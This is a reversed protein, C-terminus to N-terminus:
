CDRDAPEVGFGELEVRGLGRGIGLIFRGDSLRDMDMASLATEFPSRAFAFAIGSLLKVRSTSVAAAALPSPPASAAPIRSPNSADLRSGSAPYSTHGSRM